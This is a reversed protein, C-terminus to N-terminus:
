FSWCLMAHSFAFTSWILGRACERSLPATQREQLSIESSSRGADRDVLGPM